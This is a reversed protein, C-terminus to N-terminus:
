RVTEFLGSTGMDGDVCIAVVGYRLNRRRPKRVLHGIQCSGTMGSPHGIAISDGSINYRESDIELQDRCYLYQSAFTENLEWLDTDAIKLEKAEFLKLVSFVPGIDMEDSECGVVTFGRFFAELELGLALTEELGMLLTMSVGDFLQSTNGATVPGDGTFTPKLLALGELTTNPHNCGDCDVVGDLM